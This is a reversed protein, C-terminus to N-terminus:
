VVWASPLVDLGQHLLNQLKIPDIAMGSPETPEAQQSALLSDGLGQLLHSSGHLTSPLLPLLLLGGRPLLLYAACELLGVALNAAFLWSGPDLFQDLHFLLGGGLGGLPAGPCTLVLVRACIFSSTSAHSSFDSACLATRLPRGDDLPKKLLGLRFAAPERTEPELLAEAALLATAVDPGVADPVATDPATARPVPVMVAPVAADPTAADPVM